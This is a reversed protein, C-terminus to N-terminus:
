LKREGRRLRERMDSLSVPSSGHAEAIRKSAEANQKGIENGLEDKGAKKVKALFVLLIIVLAGWGILTTM